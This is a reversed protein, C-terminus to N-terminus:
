SLEVPATEKAHQRGGVLRQDVGHETRGARRQAPGEDGLVAMVLAQDAALLM